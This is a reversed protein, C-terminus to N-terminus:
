NLSTDMTIKNNFFASSIKIYINLYINLLDFLYLLYPFYLM